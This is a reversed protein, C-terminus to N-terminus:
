EEEYGTLRQMLIRGNSIQGVSGTQTEFNLTIYNKEVLGIGKVYVESREDRNVINEPIDEMVVRIAEEGDVISGLLEFPGTEEFRWTHISRVNAANGDWFNGAKVPFTLKVFAVNNETVVVQDASKRVSWVSDSEWTVTDNSVARAILYTVTGDESIISDFLAERLFYTMTDGIGSQFHIELVEYSRVQGISVPFFDFGQDTQLDSMQDRCAM